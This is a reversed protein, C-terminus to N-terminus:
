RGRRAAGKNTASQNANAVTPATQKGRVIDAVFRFASAFSEIQPKAEQPTVKKMGLPVDFQLRDPNLQVDRAEVIVRLKTGAPQVANIECRLPLGTEQDVFIVDDTQRSVDDGVTLRYKVATRGNVTDLGLQEHQAGAKMREAVAGPTLVSVPQFGLADTTLEVYQKREILVLYKLGSKELYAVQGLPAPLLFVWRRDAGFKAFGFQRPARAADESAAQISITLEESYREPEKIDIADTHSSARSDANANGNPKLSSAVPSNANRGKGANTCGAGPSALLILSVIFTRGYATSRRHQSYRMLPEVRGKRYRSLAM